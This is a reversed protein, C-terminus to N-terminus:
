RASEESEVEIVIERGRRESVLPLTVTLLGAALRARAHAMDVPVEFEVVRVFRGRPRELCLFARQGSTGGAEQREGSVVLSREKCVVKLSEPGLGRVEVVVV